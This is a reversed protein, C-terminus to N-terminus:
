ARTRHRPSVKWRKTTSGRTSRSRPPMSGRIWKRLMTSGMHMAKEVLEEPAVRGTVISATRLLTPTELRTVEKTSGMPAVTLM